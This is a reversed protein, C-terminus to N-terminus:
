VRSGRRADTFVPLGHGDDLPKWALEVGDGVRAEAAKEGVLNTLVRVGEELDVLAVVYPCDGVGMTGFPVYHVSVAHVVGRGSAPLWEFDQGLCSPCAARPHHILRACASCTQLLLTRERTGDWFPRTPGLAPPVFSQQSL